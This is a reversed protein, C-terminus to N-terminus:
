NKIYHYLQPKNTMKKMDKVLKRRETSEELTLDPVRFVKNYSSSKKLGSSNRLAKVAAELSHFLVKVPRTAGEEVAGVRCCDIVALKDHQAGGKSDM